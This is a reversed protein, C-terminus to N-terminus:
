WLHLIDSKLFKPLVEGLTLNNILDVYIELDLIKWFIKM